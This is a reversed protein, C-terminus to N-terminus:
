RKMFDRVLEFARLQEHLKDNEQKLEFNEAMLQEFVEALRMQRNKFLVMPNPVENGMADVMGFTM